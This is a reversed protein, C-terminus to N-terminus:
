IKLLKPCILSLQLFVIGITGVCHLNRISITDTLTSNKGFIGLHLKNKPFKNFLEDKEGFAGLDSPLLEHNRIVTVRGNGADFTAMGDPRMPTFFGDSM